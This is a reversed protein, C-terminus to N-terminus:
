AIRHVEGYHHAETWGDLVTAPEKKMICPYICKLETRTDVLVYAAKLGDVLVLDDWAHSLSQLEQLLTRVKRHIMTASARSPSAPIGPHRPQSVPSSMSTSPGHFSALCKSIPCQCVDLIHSLLQPPIGDYRGYTCFYM